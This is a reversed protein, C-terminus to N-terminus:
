CNRCAICFAGTQGKVYARYVFGCFCLAVAYRRQIRGVRFVPFFIMFISVITILSGIQYKETKYTFILLGASLVALLISLYASTRMGTFINLALTAASIGVGALALVNFLRTRFDLKRDLFRM